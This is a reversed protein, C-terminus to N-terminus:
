TSMRECVWLAFGVSACSQTTPHPLRTGLLARARRRMRAGGASARACAAPALSAGEAGVDRTARVRFKHYWPCPGDILCPLGAHLLSM